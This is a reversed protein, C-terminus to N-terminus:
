REASSINSRDGCKRWTGDDGWLCGAVFGTPVTVWPGFDNDHGAEVDDVVESSFQLPHLPPGVDSECYPSELLIGESLRSPGGAQAGITM